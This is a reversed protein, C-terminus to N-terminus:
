QRVTNVQFTGNTPSATAGTIILTLAGGLPLINGTGTAPITTVASGVTVATLGPIPVGNIALAATYTGTASTVTVSSIAMAYQASLLLGITGNTTISGCYFAIKFSGKLGGITGVTPNVMLEGAPSITMADVTSNNTVFHISNGTTTGVVLDGSTATVYTSNPLALSGVGTFGSSNIGFNGYHTTATAQDNAVIVDASATSGNSINQIVTQVYTNVTEAFVTVSNTDTFSLTGYNYAGTGTATSLTTTTATISTAAAVGLIPTVLTPSTALVVDGTGTVLASSALVINGLDLTGSIGGGAATETLLLHGAGNIVAASIGPGVAGAVGSTGSTGIVNGLDVTGIVSGGVTTETLMLHGTGDIKAASFGSGALGPAGVVNGVDFTGVVSGAITETLMLHGSSNIVAASFGPGDVGPAGTVTGAVAITTGNSLYLNISGNPQVAASTITPIGLNVQAAEQAATGATSIESFLNEALLAEFRSVM